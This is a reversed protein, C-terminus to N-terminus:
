QAYGTLAANHFRGESISRNSIHEFIATHQHAGALHLNLNLWSMKECPFVDDSDIVKWFDGFRAAVVRNWKSNPLYQMMFHIVSKDDPERPIKVEDIKNLFDEFVSIGNVGLVYVYLGTPIDLYRKTVVGAVTDAFVHKVYDGVKFRPLPAQTTEEDNTM